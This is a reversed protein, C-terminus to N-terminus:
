SANRRVTFATRYCGMGSAGVSDTGPSINHRTSVVYYSGSFREGLGEIKVVAGARLETRGQCLGEGGIYALAMDNFWGLASQDAEAQSFMPWNVSSSISAGFAKDATQPGSNSGGMTSTEKGAQAQAIIAEKTKPDWSRVMVQGVQALTSSRPYFEVIDDELSLTLVEPRAIQQPRFNLEKGLVIVEYGIRRAREQLFEMDTQNHQLVYELKVKSDVVKSTLKAEQAIKEAIGSDTMEAFSRTKRGRLLRHRCDYGRVTLSFPEDSNFAPELGTIEGVIMSKLGSDQYGMQIEVPSGEAFNADDVWKVQLKDMDWNYLRLTFMGPVGVDEYVTVAIIDSVAADPLPNENVNIKFAPVQVDQTM